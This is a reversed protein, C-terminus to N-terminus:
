DVQWRPCEFRPLRHSGFLLELARHQLALLSILEVGDGLCQRHLGVGSRFFGVHDIANELGGPHGHVAARGTPSRLWRRRRRRRSCRLRCPRVTALPRRRLVVLRAADSPTPWHGSRSTPLHSTRQHRTQLRLVALFGRSARRASLRDHVRETRGVIDLLGAGSRDPRRGRRRRILVGALLLVRVAPLPARAAGGSQVVCRASGGTLRAAVAAALTILRAAVALAVAVPVVAVLVVLVAVLVVLVAVLVVLVAVVAVVLTAAVVVHAVTPAVPAAAPTVALAPSGFAIELTGAAILVLLVLALEDRDPAQEVQTVLAVSEETALAIQRRGLVDVDRDALGAPEGKALTVADLPEAARGAARLLIGARSWISM